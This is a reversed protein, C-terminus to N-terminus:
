TTGGIFLAAIEAARRRLSSLDGTNDVIDHAYQQYFDDPKQANLRRKAEEPSLGPERQLIRALRMEKPALVVCVRDCKETFGSEILAAADLCVALVGEKEAEIALKEAEALIYHHTIQNLLALKEADSFVVAALAKRDLEGDTTLIQKGFAETLNALAPKGKQVIERALLDGDIHRIGYASLFGAFESKGAGSPGTLGLIKM